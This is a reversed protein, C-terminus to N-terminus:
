AAAMEQQQEFATAVLRSTMGTDAAHPVLLLPLPLPMLMMGSSGVAVHQVANLPLWCGQPKCCGCLLTISRHEIHQWMACAAEVPDDDAAASIAVM